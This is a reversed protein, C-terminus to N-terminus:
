RDIRDMTRCRECFEGWLSNLILKMVLRMGNNRDPNIESPKMYIGFENLM